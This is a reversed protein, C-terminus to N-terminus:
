GPMPKACTTQCQAAWKPFWDQFEEAELRLRDGLPWSLSGTEIGRTQLALKIAWPSPFETIHALFEDLLGQLSRAKEKQGSRFAEYTTQILEPCVSATGSITGDAGQELADVLLEDSGILFAMPMKAKAEHLLSLNASLGSSDKVGVVNPVTNVLRLVNHLGLDRTFQPINYFLVPLPLAAAAQRMFNMLHCPKHPFFSPPPLLVADARCEAATRALRLVHGSHEGGVGFILAARGNLRRAAGRFLACREEVSAAAYEGTAGGICFGSIGQELLFDIAPYLDEVHPTGDARYPTPLAAFVGTLTTPIQKPMLEILSLRHIEELKVSM